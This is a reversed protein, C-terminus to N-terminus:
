KLMSLIQNPDIGRQKCTEYFARQGDGGYQNIINMANQVQPNQVMLNGFMARPNPSSQVLNMMSKIQQLQSM